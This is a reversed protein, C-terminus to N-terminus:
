SFDSPSNGAGRTAEVIFISIETVLHKRNHLRYVTEWAQEGLHRCKDEDALLELCADAFDAPEDRLLIDRGDTMEIGEAAISTAVIPKAYAAAELIKVRTGSGIQIPCAVVRTREYLADLNEVFGLFEVEPGVQGYAPINEAGAGAILLRAAPMAKHIRPWIRRILMNAAQANPQYGYYGIFLVTRAKPCPTKPRSIVSNPVTVVHPDSWIHRLAERDRDSCVFTTEALRLARFESLLLLPRKILNLLCLRVGGENRVFREYKIHEVDDLDFLVLPLNCRTLLLPAIAGLRHAIIVDPQRDLCSELAKVQANGSTGVGFKDMSINFAGRAILRTVLGAWRHLQLEWREGDLKQCLFLSLDAGWHSALVKEWHAISDPSTDIGNHVYLLVDLEGLAKAADIMMHMRQFVGGVETRPEGHFYESIFLTRM